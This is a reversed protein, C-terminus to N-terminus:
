SRPKSWRVAPLPGAAAMLMAEFAETIAAVARNKYAFVGDHAEPHVLMTANAEFVLVRGDPLIGFDIGAYDLDLRRGIESIATMVAAGLVAHPDDIFRQEEARRAADQGMRATEHHVLWDRSIALHYPYPRRDIFVIRYKRFYGDPSRYDHFATAYGDDSMKLADLESKSAALGLGKGGHSGLPRVLVPLGLGAQEVAGALGLRDIDAALIRAIAPTFVGEIGGLLAPMADRRTRMVADPPNLVPSECRQLFRRMPALTPHALDPDGIANFVLDYSPLDRVQDADSYEVVWRLRSFRDRPMLHDLPVNGSEATTPMLVTLRPRPAPEVFLNRGRYALDRHRKAEAPRAQDALLSALNLHAVLMDPDLALAQRAHLEAKDRKEARLYVSSLSAHAAALSPDLALAAKLSREAADARDAEAYANGLTLQTAARSPDISSAWELALIAEDPRRLALAAAGRVFWAEPLIPDLDLAAAASALAADADGLDLLALALGTHAATLGPDLDAADRYAGIAAQQDGAVVLAAGLAVRAAALAPFRAAADRGAQIAAAVDGSERLANALGIAADASDADLAVARRYGAIAAAHEGNWHLLRALTTQAEAHDPRLAVVAEFLEAAQDVRGAEFALLGYLYLATPEHPDTALAQRYLQEADDHRGAQHQSLARSLVDTPDAAQSTM